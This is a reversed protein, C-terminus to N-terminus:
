ADFKVPSSAPRAAAARVHAMVAENNLFGIFSDAELVADYIWQLEPAFFHGTTDIFRATAFEGPNLAAQLVRQYAGNNYSEPRWIQLDHLFWTLMAVNDHAETERTESLDIIRPGQDTVLVNHASLDNWYLGKAMMQSVVDLVVCILTEKDVADPEPAGEYLHTLHTGQLRSLWIWGTSSEIGNGLLRPLYPATGLRRYAEIERNYRDQNNKYDNFPLAKLVTSDSVYVRTCISAIRNPWQYIVWRVPVKCGVPPVTRRILYIPRQNKESIGIQKIDADRIDALMEAPQSPMYDYDRDSSLEIITYDFRSVVDALIRKAEVIGKEGVLYHIVSFLLCADSSVAAHDRFFHLQRFEAPSAIAQKLTKCFDYLLPDAEIGVVQAFHEALYFSIFGMNCGVDTITMHKTNLPGLHQLVLECRKICERQIPGTHNLAMGYVPQYLERDPHRDALEDLLLQLRVSPEIPQAHTEAIAPHKQRFEPSTLFRDVVDGLSSATMWNRVVMENEPDRGLLLRYLNVVDDYTPKDDVM